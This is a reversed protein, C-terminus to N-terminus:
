NPIKLIVFHNEFDRSERFVCLMIVVMPFKVHTSIEVVVFRLVKIKKKNSAYGYFVLECLFNVDSSKLSPHWTLFLHWKQGKKARHM